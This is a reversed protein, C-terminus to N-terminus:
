TNYKKRAEIVRDVSKDLERLRKVLRAIAEQKVGYVREAELQSMDDCLHALTAEILAESSVKTMGLLVEIYKRNM